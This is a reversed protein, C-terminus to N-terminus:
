KKVAGLGAMAEQLRKHAADQSEKLTQHGSMWENYIFEAEQGYDAKLKAFDIEGNAPDIYDNIDPRRPLGTNAPTEPQPKRLAGSLRSTDHTEYNGTFFNYGTGYPNKPVNQIAKGISWTTKPTSLYDGM